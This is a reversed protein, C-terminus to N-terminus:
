GPYYFIFGEQDFVPALFSLLVAIVFFSAALEAARETRAYCRNDNIKPVM